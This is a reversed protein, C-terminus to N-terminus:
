PTINPLIMSPLIMKKSIQYRRDIVTPNWLLRSAQVVDYRFMSCTEIPTRRDYVPGGGAMAAFCGWAEKTAFDHPKTIFLANQKKYGMDVIPLFFPVKPKKHALVWTALKGIVWARQGM